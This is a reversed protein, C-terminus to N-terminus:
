RSILLTIAAECVDRGNSTFGAWILGLAGLALVGGVAALGLSDENFGAKIVAVAIALFLVAAIGVIIRALFVVRKHARSEIVRGRFSILRGKQQPKM